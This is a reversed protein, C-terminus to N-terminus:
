RIYDSKCMGRKAEYWYLSGTVLGVVTHNDPNYPDEEFVNIQDVENILPFYFDSM